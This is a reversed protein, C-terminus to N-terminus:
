ARKEAKRAAIEFHNHWYPDRGRLVAWASSVLYALPFVAGWCAAQRVHALEHMLVRASLGQNESIVIHGLAMATMAGFPHHGLLVDALPGRVLLAFSRSHILHAHGHWALVPLAIALGVLSLPSAWLIGLLTGLCRLPRVVWPHRFFRRLSLRLGRESGLPAPRPYRADHQLSDKM